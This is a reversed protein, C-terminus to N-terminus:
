ADSAANAPGLGADWPVGHDRGHRWVAEALAFLLNVSSVLIRVDMVNTGTSGDQGARRSERLLPVLRQQQSIERADRCRREKM